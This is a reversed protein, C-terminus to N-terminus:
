LQEHSVAASAVVRGAGSNVGVWRRVRVVAVVMGLHLVQSWWRKRWGGLLGM